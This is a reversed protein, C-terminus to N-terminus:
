RSRAFLYLAIVLAAVGVALGFIVQLYNERVLSLFGHSAQPPRDKAATRNAPLTAGEEISARPSPELAGLPERQQPGPTGSFPFEQATYRSGDPRERTEVLLEITSIM